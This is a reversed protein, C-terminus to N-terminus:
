FNNVVRRIEVRPKAFNMLLCVKLNTARLYNLCQAFHIDDLDKVAKLEIIVQDEVIIDTIYQGVIMGDYLVEISVQKKVKLGKKDLEILLSNEYVKELFGCGLKNSVKFACGIIKETIIDLKQQEQDM